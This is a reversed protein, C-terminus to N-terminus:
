PLKCTVSQPFRCREGAKTYAVWDVEALAPTRTADFPGLWDAINATGNWLTLYFKGPTSPLGPGSAERVLKGNVYWRISGPGWVFAYDNFGASADFGLEPTSGHEGKGATFYNLQVQRSNKGLFEFDIEDHIPSLPKGSYTFIASNLGSGAATRMRAEYTGYGYAANTQLEACRYPRLRDAAKALHLRLVGKSVGANDRSWTCGQHDGNTWGDAVYWHKPDIRDLPDFFSGQGQPLPQAPAQPAPASGAPAGTSVTTSATPAASVIALGGLVALPAPLGPRGLRRPADTSTIARSSRTTAM